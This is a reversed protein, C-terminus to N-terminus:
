AEFAGADELDEGYEDSYYSVFASAAEESGAVAGVRIEDTINLSKKSSQLYKVVDVLADNDSAAPLAVVVKNEVAWAGLAAEDPVPSGLVIEVPRPNVKVEVMSPPSPIFTKKTDSPPDVLTVKENRIVEYDAM